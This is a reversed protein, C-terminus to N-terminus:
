LKLNAIIVSKSGVGSRIDNGINKMKSGKSIKGKYTFFIVSSLFLLIIFCIIITPIWSGESSSANVKTNTTGLHEIIREDDEDIGESYYNM